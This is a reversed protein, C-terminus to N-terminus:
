TPYFYVCIKKCIVTNLVFATYKKVYFKYFWQHIYKINRFYFNNNLNTGNISFHLPLHIIVGKAQGAM